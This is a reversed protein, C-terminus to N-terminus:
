KDLDSKVVLKDIRRINSLMLECLNLTKDDRAYFYMDAVYSNNELNHQLQSGVRVQKPNNKAWNAFGSTDGIKNGLTVKYNFGNNKDVIITNPELHSLHNPDPEWFELLNNKNMASKLTHLWERNNSYICVTHGEIRLTYDDTKSLFKYLKRADLFSLETVPIERFFKTVILPEGEEYQQQLTDLVERAYSLNKDRFISGISNHICL